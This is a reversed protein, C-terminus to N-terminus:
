LAVAMKIWEKYRLGGIVSEYLCSFADLVNRDIDTKSAALKTKSVVKKVAAILNENSIYSVYRSKAM